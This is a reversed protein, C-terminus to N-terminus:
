PTHLTLDSLPLVTDNLQPSTQFTIEMDDVQAKQQKRTNYIKIGIAGLSGAILISITLPDM